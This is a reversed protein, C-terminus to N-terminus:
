ASGQGNGCTTYSQQPGQTLWSGKNEKGKRKKKLVNVLVTHLDLEEEFVDHM